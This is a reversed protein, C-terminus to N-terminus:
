VDAPLVTATLEPAPGRHLRFLSGARYQQVCHRRAPARCTCAGTKKDLQRVLDDRGDCRIWRGCSRDPLPFAAPEPLALTHGPAACQWGLTRDRYALDALGDGNVDLALADYAPPTTFLPEYDTGTNRFGEYYWPPGTLSFTGRMIMLDQRGDGDFDPAGGSGVLTLLTTGGNVTTGVSTTQEPGFGSGLNRRIRVIFERAYVLDDLGDGDM